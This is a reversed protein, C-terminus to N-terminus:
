SLIKLGRDALGIALAVALFIALGTGDPERDPFFVLLVTAFFIAGAVHVHLM